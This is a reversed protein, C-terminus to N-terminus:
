QLLNSSTNFDVYIMMQVFAYPMLQFQMMTNNDLVIGKDKLNWYFSPQVQNPSVNVSEVTTIAEGTPLQKIFNFSSSLQAVNTTYLHLQKIKYQYSGMSSLIQNYTVASSGSGYTNITFGDTIIPFAPM